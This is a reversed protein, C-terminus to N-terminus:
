RECSFSHHYKVRTAALAGGKLGKKFGIKGGQYAFYIPMFAIVFPLTAVSSIKIGPEAINLLLITEYIIAPIGLILGETLGVITGATKDLVNLTKKLNKNRNQM